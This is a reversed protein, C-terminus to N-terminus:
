CSGYELKTTLNMPSIPLILSCTMLTRVCKPLLLTSAQHTNALWQALCGGVSKNLAVEFMNSVLINRSSTVFNLLGFDFMALVSLIFVVPILVIPVLPFFFTLSSVFCGSRNWICGVDMTWHLVEPLEGSREVTATNLVAFRKSSWDVRPRERRSSLHPLLFAGMNISLIRDHAYEFKWKCQFSSVGYIKWHIGMTRGYNQWIKGHIKGHSRSKERWRITHVSDKLVKLSGHSTFAMEEVTDEPYGLTATSFPWLFLMQNHFMQFILWITNKLFIMHNYM